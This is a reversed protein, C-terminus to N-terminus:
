DQRSTESIRNSRNRVLYYAREIGQGDDRLVEQGGPRQNNEAMEKLREAFSGWSTQESISQWMNAESLKINKERDIMPKVWIKLTLDLPQGVFVKDKGGEIEVFLLDGTESKTAVFRLPQTMQDRGDVNVTIQPIEFSGARRPTIYYQMTISRSESRRGNIITVQSSQAPSGAARVDCGDINPIKPERYDSANNISIQLVVPMGVYAERASLRADVSQAVSTRAM